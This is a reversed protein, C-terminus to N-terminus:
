AVESPGISRSLHHFEDTSTYKVAVDLTLIGEEQREAKNNDENCIIAFDYVLDNEQMKLLNEQMVQSVHKRTKENNEEFLQHTLVFDMTEKIKAAQTNM